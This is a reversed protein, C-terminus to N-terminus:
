VRFVLHYRHKKGHTGRALFLMTDKTLKKKGRPICRQPSTLQGDCPYWKPGQELNGVRVYTLYGMLHIEDLKTLLGCSRFASVNPTTRCCGSLSSVSTRLIQAFKTIGYGFFKMSNPSRVSMTYTLRRPKRTTAEAMMEITAYTVWCSPNTPWIWALDRTWRSTIEILGKATSLAEKSTKLSTTPVPDM